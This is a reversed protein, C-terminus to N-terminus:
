SRWWWLSAVALGVFLGAWFVGTFINGTRNMDARRECFQWYPEPEGATRARLAELEEDSMIPDFPIRGNKM